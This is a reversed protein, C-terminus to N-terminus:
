AGHVSLRLQRQGFLISSMSHAVKCVLIMAASSSNWRNEFGAIYHGNVPQITVIQRDRLRNLQDFPLGFPMYRPPFAYNLSRAFLFAPEGPYGIAVHRIQWPLFCESTCWNSKAAAPLPVTHGPVTPVLRSKARYPGFLARCFHPPKRAARFKSFPSVFHFCCCCRLLRHSM